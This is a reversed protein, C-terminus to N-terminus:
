ESVGKQSQSHLATELKCPTCWENMPRGSGGCIDDFNGFCGLESCAFRIATELEEAVEARVFRQAGLIKFNARGEAIEAATLVDMVM